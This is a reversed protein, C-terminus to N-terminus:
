IIRKVSGLHVDVIVQEADNSNIKLIKILNIM